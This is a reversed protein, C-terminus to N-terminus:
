SSSPSPAGGGGAPYLAPWAVLGGRLDALEGPLPVELGTQLDRAMLKRGTNYLVATGDPTFVPALKRQGDRTLQQWPM